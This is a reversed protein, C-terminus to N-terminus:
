CCLKLVPNSTHYTGHLHSALSGNPVFDSILLKEDKRYYFAHLPLLNPHSLAGIRKMHQYFEEKGVSNMHRVRKVVMAPGVLLIAKYSSGLNGSGLVEASARLLDPLDFRQPLDTSIFCLKGDELKPDPPSRPEIVTGYKTEPKNYDPEIRATSTPKLKMRRSYLVTAAITALAIVSAVSIAIVATFLKKRSKCPALPKGCLDNNGSLNLSLCYSPDLNNSRTKRLYM